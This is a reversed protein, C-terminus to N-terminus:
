NQSPWTLVKEKPIASGRLLEIPRGGLPPWRRPQRMTSWLPNFLRFRSHPEISWGLTTRRHRVVRPLLCPFIQGVRFILCYQADLNKKAILHM